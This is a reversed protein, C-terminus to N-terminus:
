LEEFCYVDRSVIRKILIPSSYLVSWRQLEWSKLYNGTVYNYVDAYVSSMLEVKVCVCYSEYGFLGFALSAVWCPPGRRAPQLLTVWGPSIQTIIPPGHRGKGSPDYRKSRDPAAWSRAEPLDLQQQPHELLLHVSFVTMLKIEFPLCPDFCMNSGPERETGM